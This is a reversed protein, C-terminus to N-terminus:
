TVVVRAEYGLGIMKTYVDEQQTADECIIIVGYQEEYRDEGPDFDDPDFESEEGEELGHDARVINMVNDIFEQDLAPVETTPDDFSHILRLTNEYNFPARRGTLNDALAYAIARQADDEVFIAAIKEWGLSRAATLTGNGAETIMTNKNVVIPKRQGFQNLSRATEDLDHAQHNLANVPDLKPLDIDVVFPRLLPAIYDPGSDILQELQAAAEPTLVKAAETHELVSTKKKSMPM